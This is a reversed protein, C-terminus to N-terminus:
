SMHLVFFTILLYLSHFVYDSSNRFLSSSYDKYVFNGKLQNRSFHSSSVFDDFHFFFLGFKKYAISFM